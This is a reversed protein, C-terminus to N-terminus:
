PFLAARRTSHAAFHMPHHSPDRELVIRMMTYIPLFLGMRLTVRTTGVQRQFPLQISSGRIRDRRPRIV